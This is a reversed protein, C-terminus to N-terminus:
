MELELSANALTNLPQARGGVRTVRSLSGLLVLSRAYEFGFDVFIANKSSFKNM